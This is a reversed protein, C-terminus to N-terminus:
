DSCHGLVPERFDSCSGYFSGSADTLLTQRETTKRTFLLSVKMYWLHFKECKYDFWRKLINLKGTVWLVHYAIIAMLTMVTLFSSTFGIIKMILIAKKHIFYWSTLYIFTINMVLGSDLLNVLKSKFPKTYTQFVLFIVLMLSISICVTYIDTARYKAYIGYM